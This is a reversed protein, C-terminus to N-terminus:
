VTSASSHQVFQYKVLPGLATSHAARGLVTAKLDFDTLARGSGVHKQRMSMHDALTKGEQKVPTDAASICKLSQVSWWATKPM